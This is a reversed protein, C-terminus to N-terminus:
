SRIIVTQAGGTADSYGSKVQNQALPHPEVNGRFRRQGMPDGNRTRCGEAVVPFALSRRTPSWNVKQAPDNGTVYDLALRRSGDIERLKEALVDDMGRDQRSRARNRRAFRCCLSEGVRATAFGITLDHGSAVGGASQRSQKSPSDLTEECSESRRAAGEAVLRPSIVRIFANTTRAAYRCEGPSQGNIGRYRASSEGDIRYRANFADM